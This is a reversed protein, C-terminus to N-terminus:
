GSRVGTSHSNRFIPRLKCICVAVQSTVRSSVSAALGHSVRIRRSLSPSYKEAHNQKRVSGSKHGLRLSKVSRSIARFHAM